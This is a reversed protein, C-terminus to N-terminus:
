EVILKKTVREGDVNVCLMYIGHPLRLDIPTERNVAVALTAVNRGTMDLVETRARENTVSAIYLSFTGYNPNPMIKVANAGKEVKAVSNVCPVTAIVTMTKTAYSTGCMNGVGYSITVTGSAVGTVAGASVTAKATNSSSWTGGTISPTLTVTQGPCVSDAGTLTGAGPMTIVTANITITDSYTGDTVRVSFVDTGLYGTAPAYTMGSPTVTSGTSTASYTAVLTGHSPLTVPSWNLTQGVDIDDVRLATDITTFEVPCMVVSESTGASFYPENGIKIKRVRNNENDCIFVDGGSVAVGTPHDLKALDAMGGDGGFGEVTGALTFIIGSTGVKRVVSNNWDSIYLNGPGDVTIAQPYYVRAATAPGGDGAYGYVSGPVTGAVVGVYTTIIGTSSSIKRVRNNGNDAIYINGTADCDVDTPENLKAVNALGGDGAVGTGITGTGCITSIIGTSLIVRRIRHNQQDAILLDGTVPHIAIGTPNGLNAATAQGGDGSFSPLTGAIGAVNSIIGSTNIKRVLNNGFDCFYLNGAADFRLGCPWKCRATAAAGGNDTAYYEGMGNGCITTIVGTAATVKRIRHNEYDAIYVNGAADCAVSKPAQLKALTAPGLDGFYAPTGEGAYTTIVQGNVATNIGIAIITTFLVRFTRKLKKDIKALIHVNEQETLIM